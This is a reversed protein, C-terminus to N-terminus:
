ERERIWDLAKSYSAQTLFHRLQPPLVSALREQEAKLQLSVEKLQELHAASDRARLDHDGIVSLRRELLEKLPVWTEVPPLIM